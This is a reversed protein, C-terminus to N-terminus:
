ERLGRGQEILKSAPNQNQKVILANPNYIEGRKTSHVLTLDGFGAQDVFIFLVGGEIKDYHWIEHDLGAADAYRRDVFDPEGYLIFVRGRDTRWGERNLFSYRRNAEAVRSYHVNAADAEEPGRRKWFDAIFKRKGESDMDRARRMEQRTLLYHLLELASDPDITELIGGESNYNIMSSARNGVDASLFDTDERRYVYFKKMAERAAQNPVEVQISLIYTGTRLTYAPFGDAIVLSEGPRAYKRLSPQKADQGTEGDIVRRQVMISDEVPGLTDLGYCELYYYLMPLEAGYFGSPNPVFRLGNRTFASPGAAFALEAGLAIGSLSAQASVYPVELGIETWDYNDASDQVLEITLDYSGPFLLYRSIYPFYAGGSHSETRSTKDITDLTDSILISDSRGITTILSFQAYSSDEQTAIYVLESRQVGTYVECYTLSDEGLFYVFDVDIGGCLGHSSIGVALTFLWCLMKRTM